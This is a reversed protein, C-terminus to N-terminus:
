KCHQEIWKYFDKLPLPKDKCDVLYEKKDAPFDGIGLIPVKSHKSYKKDTKVAKSFDYGNIIPMNYDTFIIDINDELALIALGEKGNMASKTTHGKLILALIYMENVASNDEVLLVKVM